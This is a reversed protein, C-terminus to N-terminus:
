QKTKMWICVYNLCTIKSPYKGELKTEPNIYKIKKPKNKHTTLTKVFIGPNIVVVRGSIKKSFRTYDTLIVVDGFSLARFGSPKTKDLANSINECFKKFGINLDSHWYLLGYCQKKKLTKIHNLWNPNLEDKLEMDEYNTKFKPIESHLIRAEQLKNPLSLDHIFNLKFTNM